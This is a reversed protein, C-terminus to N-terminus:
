RAEGDRSERGFLREWDPLRALKVIAECIARRTDGWIDLPDAKIRNESEM